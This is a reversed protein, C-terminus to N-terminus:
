LPARSEIQKSESFLRFVGCSLTLRIKFIVISADIETLQKLALGTKVKPVM